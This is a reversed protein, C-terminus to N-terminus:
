DECPVKRMNKKKANIKKEQLIKEKVKRPRVKPRSKFKLAAAKLKERENRKRLLEQLRELACQKNKYQSRFDSVKLRIGTPRHFLQVASDTKNVHQGGPGSSRTTTIDCQVCLEEITPIRM